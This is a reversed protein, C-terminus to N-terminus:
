LNYPANPDRKVGAAQWLAPRGPPNVVAMDSPCMRGKSVGSTTVMVRSQSLRVSLNGDTGAVFDKQHLMKGFHVLDKQSCRAGCYTTNM